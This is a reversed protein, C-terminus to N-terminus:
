SSYNSNQTNVPIVYRTWADACLLSNTSRLDRHFHMPIILTCSWPRHPRLVNQAFLHIYHALSSWDCLLRVNVFAVSFYPVKLLLCHTRPLDLWRSEKWYSKCIHYLCFSHHWYLFAIKPAATNTNSIPPIHQTHSPSPTLHCPEYRHVHLGVSVCVCM